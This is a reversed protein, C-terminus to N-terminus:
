GSIYRECGATVSYVRLIIDSKPFSLCMELLWSHVILELEDIMLSFSLIKLHSLFPPSPVINLTHPLIHSVCLIIQLIPLFLLSQTLRGLLSAHSFCFSVLNLFSSFSHLIIFCHPPHYLYLMLHIPCVTIQEEARKLQATMTNTVCKSTWCRTKRSTQLGKHCNRSRDWM